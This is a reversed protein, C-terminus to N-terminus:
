VRESERSLIPDPKLTGITNGTNLAGPGFWFFWALISFALIWGITGIPVILRKPFYKYLVMSGVVAAAPVGGLIYPFVKEGVAHELAHHPETIAFFIAWVAMPIGAFILWRGSPGILPRNTM